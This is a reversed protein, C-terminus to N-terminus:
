NMDPDNEKVICDDPVRYMVPPFRTIFTKLSIPLNYLPHTYDDIFIGLTELGPPLNDFPVNLDDAVIILKKLGDPLNDLPHIYSCNMLRLVKLSKPLNDLPAGIYDTEDDGQYIIHLEELNIPLNDFPNQMNGDEDEYVQCNVPPQLIISKISMPLRNMCKIQGSYEMILSIEILSEPFVLECGDSIDIIDLALHTLTNPLILEKINACHYICLSIVGDPIQISSGYLDYLDDDADKDIDSEYRLELDKIGPPIVYNSLLYKYDYMTLHSINVPLKKIIGFENYIEVNDYKRGNYIIDDPLVVDCPVLVSFRLITDDYEDPCIRYKSNFDADLALDM